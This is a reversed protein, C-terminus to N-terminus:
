CILIFKFAFLLSRQSIGHLSPIERGMIYKLKFCRKGCDQILVRCGVCPRLGLHAYEPILDEEEALNCCRSISILNKITVACYLM